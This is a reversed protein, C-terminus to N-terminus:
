PISCAAGSGPVVAFAPFPVPRGLQSNAILFGNYYTGDCNLTRYDYYCFEGPQTYGTGHTSCSYPGRVVEPPGGVSNLTQSNYYSGDIGAPAIYVYQYNPLVPNETYTPAHVTPVIQNWYSDNGGSGDGDNNGDGDCDMWGDGGGGDIFGEHGANGAATQITSGTTPLTFLNPASIREFKLDLEGETLIKYASNGISPPICRESTFSTIKYPNNYPLGEYTLFHDVTDLACSCIDGTYGNGTICPSALSSTPWHGSPNAVATSGVGWKKPDTTTGLTVWGYTQIADYAPGTGGGAPNARIERVRHRYSVLYNGEPWDDDFNVGDSTSTFTPAHTTPEPVNWNSDNSGSGDNDNEGDGDCDNWGGGGGGADFGIGGGTGAATQSTSGSTSLPIIIPQAVPVVVTENSSISKNTYELCSAYPRVNLRFATALFGPNWTNSSPFTVVDGTNYNPQYGGVVCEVNVRYYPLGVFPSDTGFPNPQTIGAIFYRISIIELIQYSIVELHTMGSSTRANYDMVHSWWAFNGNSDPDYYEIAAPHTVKTCFPGTATTGENIDVEETVEFGNTASTFTPSHGPSNTNTQTTSGTTPLPTGAVDSM